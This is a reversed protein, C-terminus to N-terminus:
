DSSSGILVFSDAGKEIVFAFDWFVPYFPHGEKLRFSILQDAGGAFEDFFRLVEGKKKQFQDSALFARNPFSSEDGVYELGDKIAQVFEAHDTSSTGGVVVANGLAASVTDTVSRGAMRPSSFLRIRAGYNMSDEGLKTCIAELSSNIDATM